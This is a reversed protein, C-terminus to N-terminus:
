AARWDYSRYGDRDVGSLAAGRYAVPLENWPLKGGFFLAEYEEVSLSHRRRLGHLRERVHGVAASAGSGRPVEGVYVKASSGSGYTYVGCRTGGAEALPSALLAALAFFSSATYTNGLYSAPVQSVTLGAALREATGAAVGYREVLAGLAKRPLGPYPTHFVLYDMGRNRGSRQGAPVSPEFVSRVRAAAAWDSVADLAKLYCQVSYHGRVVAEGRGAPRFFDAEDSTYTGTVDPDVRLVDPENRVLLAIAGAGQTLEASGSHPGYVAVDSAVLLADRGTDRVYRLCDLLAYAGGVCAFKVDFAECGSPLSCLGHVYAATPKAHDRSSETAVVLRGVRAAEVGPQALVEAAANAAMTVADEFPYPVAFSHIGLGSEVKGVDQGRVPALM